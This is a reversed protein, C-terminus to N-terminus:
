VGFDLFFFEMRENLLHAIDTNEFVVIAIVIVVVTRDRSCLSLTTVRQGHENGTRRLECVHDFSLKVLMGLKCHEKLSHGIEGQRHDRRHNGCAAATDAHVDDGNLFCDLHFVARDVDFVKRVPELFVFTVKADANAGAAIASGFETFAAAVRAFVPTDADAIHRVVAAFRAFTVVDGVVFCHLNKAVCFCVAENVM